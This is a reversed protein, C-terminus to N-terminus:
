GAGNSAKSVLGFAKLNMEVFAQKTKQRIVKQFSEPGLPVTGTQVLAGLMVM